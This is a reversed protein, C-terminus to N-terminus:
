KESGRSATYAIEPQSRYKLLLQVLLSLPPWLLTGTISALFYGWGIFAAGSLLHTLLVLIQSVLLLSFIHLAQPWLGFAGIRRHLVLTFFVAISYALAYQGLLAGDAVDMVLGLSWAAAMGIRLPQHVAWFILLLLVFDPRLLLASGQWPLLNLMLAVFLTMAIFQGSPPRALSPADTM